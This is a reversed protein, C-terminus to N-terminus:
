VPSLEREHNPTDTPHDATGTQNSCLMGRSSDSVVVIRALPLGGPV